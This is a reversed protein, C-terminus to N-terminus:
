HRHCLMLMMSEEPLRVAEEEGALVDQAQKIVVLVAVVVV